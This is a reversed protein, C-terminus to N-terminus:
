NCGNCGGCKSKDCGNVEGNVTYDIVELIDKYFADFKKSSDTYNQIAENEEFLFLHKSLEDIYPQADEKSLKNEQIIQATETRKKNYDAVLALAENDNLYVSEAEKMERYQPSETLMEGLRKAMEMIEM